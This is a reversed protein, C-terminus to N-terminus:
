RGKLPATPATQQDRSSLPAEFTGEGMWDVLIRGKIEVARMEDGLARAVIQSMTTAFRDFQTPLSDMMRSASELM